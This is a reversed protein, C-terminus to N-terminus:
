TGERGAIVVLMMLCSSRLTSATSSGREKKVKNCDHARADASRGARVARTTHSSTAVAPVLEKMRFSKRETCTFTPVVAPSASEGLERGEDAGM